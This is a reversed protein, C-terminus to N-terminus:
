RRVLDGSRYPYARYAEGDHVLVSVSDGPARLLRAEWPSASRYSAQDITTGNEPELSRAPGSAIPFAVSDQEVLLILPQDPAISVGDQSRFTVLIRPPSDGIWTLVPVPLAGGSGQVAMGSGSCGLSIAM